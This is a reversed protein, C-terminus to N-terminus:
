ETFTEKMDLRNKIFVEELDVDRMAPSYKGMIHKTQLSMLREKTDSINEGREGSVERVLAMFM